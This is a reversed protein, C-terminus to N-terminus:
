GKDNNNEETIEFVSRCTTGDAFDYWVLSYLVPPRHSFGPIELTIGRAKLYKKGMPCMKLRNKEETLCYRNAREDWHRYDYLHMSMELGLITMAVRVGAFDTRRDRRIDIEFNDLGLYVVSLKLAKCKAGGIHHFTKDLNMKKISKWCM